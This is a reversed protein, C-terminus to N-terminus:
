LVTGSIAPPEGEDPRRARTAGTPQDDPVVEGEITTGGGTAQARLVQVDLGRRAMQDATFREVGRRALPRTAPFLLVAALVDSLFGPLMLALGGAIALSADGVEAGPTRGRQVAQRVAQWARSGERRIVWAGLVVQACLLLLTWFVGIWHAVHVLLWLEAVALVAAVVLAVTRRRM